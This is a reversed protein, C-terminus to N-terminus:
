SVFRRRNCENKLSRPKTRGSAQDGSERYRATTTVSCPRCITMAPSATISVLVIVALIITLPLMVPALKAGDPGSRSTYLWAVRESCASFPTIFRYVALGSPESRVCSVM